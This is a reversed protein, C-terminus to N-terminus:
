QVEKVKPVAIRSGAAGGTLKMYDSLARSQERSEAIAKAYRTRAERSQVEAVLTYQALADGLQQQRHYLVALRFHIPVQWPSDGLNRKALAELRRLAAGTDGAQQDLDALALGAELSPPAANGTDAQTFWARAQDRSKFTDRYLKGLLLEVSQRGEGAPLNKAEATLVNAAEKPKGGEVLLEGLGQLAAVRDAPPDAPLYELARQYRAQAVKANKAGAQRAWEIEVRGLYHRVQAQLAPDTMDPLVKEYASIVPGFDKQAVGLAGIAGAVEYRRKWEQKPLAALAQEYKDLASRARYNKEESRGWAKLVESRYAALDGGLSAFAPDKELQAALQIRAAFNGKAAYLPDLRMALAYREQPQASGLQKLAQVYYQVAGDLDGSRALRTGWDSSTAVLASVLRAKQASLKSAALEAKILQAAQDSRGEAAYALSLAVIVEVRLAGDGLSTGKRAKDLHVIGDAPQGKRILVQGWALEAQAELARIRSVQAPDKAQAAAKHDLIVLEAHLDLRQYLPQMRELAEMYEKAPPPGAGLTLTDKYHHIAEELRGQSEFGFGIAMQVAPTRLASPNIAELRSYIELMRDAEGLHSYARGLQLLVAETPQLRKALILDEASRALRPYQASKEYSDLLAAVILPEYEPDNIFSELDVSAGEWRGRQYRCFGRMFLARRRLDRDTFPPLPQLLTEVAACNKREYELGAQDLQLNLRQQPALTSSRAATALLSAAEDGRKLKQLVAVRERLLDVDYRYPEGLAALREYDQLAEENRGAKALLRARERLATSRYRAHDSDLYASYYVIAQRLRVQGAEAQSDQRIGTAYLDARHYLADPLYAAVPYRDIVQQYDDIAENSRGGNEADKALLMLVDAKAEPADPLALYQSLWRRGTERRNDQWLALGLLRVSEAQQAPTLDDGPQISELLAASQAFRQQGFQERAQWLRAQNRQVSPSNGIREAVARAEETQGSSQLLPLLAVQSEERLASGPFSQDLQRYAAIAEATNRGAALGDGLALLAEDAFRGQPYASLYSQAAAILAVSQGAARSTRVADILRAEALSFLTAPPPAPPPTSPATSDGPAAVAGSDAAWAGGAVILLAVALVLGRDALSAGNM